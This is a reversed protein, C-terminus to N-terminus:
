GGMMMMGSLLQSPMKGTSQGLSSGLNSMFQNGFSNQSAQFNQANQQATLSNLGGFMTGALGYAGSGNGSSQNIGGFMSNGMNSQGPNSQSSRGTAVQFADIGSRSQPLFSSANNLAQSLNSIAQQKMQYGAQGYQMANAVTQSQSPAGLTGNHANQQSLGQGIQNMQTGSLNGSLDISNMLDNLRNSAAQRTAFYQPDVQQQLQLASQVTQAGPGNLVNNTTDAQALANQNQIANGIQNLQNGYTNYLNTMLSAYGPATAASAQLQAIASPTITNNVAQNLYPMLDYLAQVNDATQRYTHSPNVTAGPVNSVPTPNASNPNSWYRMGNQTYPQWSPKSDGGFISGLGLGGLISSTIGTPDGTSLFSSGLLGGNNGGGSYGGATNGNGQFYSPLSFNPILSPDIYTDAM